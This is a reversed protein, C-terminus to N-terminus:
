ERQWRIEAASIPPFRTKDHDGVYPGQKVELIVADEIVEFGHGGKVLLVTDGGRIQTSLLYSRDPAYFDARLLGSRIFLVEQTFQVQRVVLNHVHPQIITGAKHQLYGLQQSFDSPTLFNVGPKSFTGRVILALIQGDSNLIEEVGANEKM